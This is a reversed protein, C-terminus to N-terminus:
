DDRGVLLVYHEYCECYDGRVTKGYIIGAGATGAEHLFSFTMRQFSPGIVPDHSELRIGNSLFLRRVYRKFVVADFMAPKAIKVQWVPHCWSREVSFVKFGGGRLMDCIRDHERLREPWIGQRKMFQKLDLDSDWLDTVHCTMQM